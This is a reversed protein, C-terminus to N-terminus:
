WIMKINGVLSYIKLPHPMSICIIETFSINYIVFIGFVLVKVM